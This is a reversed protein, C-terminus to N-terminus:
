NLSFDWLVHNNYGATFTNNSFYIGGTIEGEIGVYFHEMAWDIWDTSGNQQQEENSSNIKSGVIVVEPYSTHIPDNFSFNSFNGCVSCAILYRTDDNDNRYPFLDYLMSPQSLSINEQINIIGLFQQAESLSSHSKIEGNRIISGITLQIDLLLYMNHIDEINNFRSM